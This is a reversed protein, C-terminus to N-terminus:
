RQRLRAGVRQHGSSHGARAPWAAAQEIGHQLVWLTVQRILATKEALPIFLAPSVVGHVPHRWRLLAEVGACQGSSLAIKPQFELWLQDASLLAGPIASLL